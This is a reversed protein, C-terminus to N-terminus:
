GLRALPRVNAIGAAGVVVTGSAVLWAHASIRGHADLCAGLHISSGCGRRALMAKAALAQPLCVANWPVNRAAITVAKRVRGVLSQDCVSTEPARSFWGAVHRFPVFVLILRAGALVVVAECLLLREVTSSRLIAGFKRRLMAMLSRHPPRVPEPAPKKRLKSRKQHHCPMM